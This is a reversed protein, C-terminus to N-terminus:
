SKATQRPSLHLVTEVKPIWLQPSVSEFSQLRGTKFCPGLLRVYTRTNPHNFGLRAIFTFAEKLFSLHRMWIKKNFKLM